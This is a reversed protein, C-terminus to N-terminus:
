RQRRRKKHDLVLQRLRASATVALEMHHMVITSCPPRVIHQPDLGYFEAVWSYVKVTMVTPSIARPQMRYSILVEGESGKRPRRPPEAALTM